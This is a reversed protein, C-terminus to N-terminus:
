AFHEAAHAAITRGIALSATAAPSPANLVHLMRWAPAFCFDDLLQGAANMAQARVGAGAPQLDEVEIEPLLRRLARWFAYKSYSRYYEGAGMRWYRRALTWFGRNTTIEWADGPAFSFKGYGERRLALVANPGAEVKGDVRRTFHVGLFPFNPDPVPYILNRVLGRRAEALEYYEGRFPMIRLQPDVGCLRAMRDSHLGACTVLNRAAVEEGAASVLVLAEPQRRCAALRFGKRVEVGGDALRREMAAAVQRYDVIGTEPVWLGAIGEVHPEYERLEGAALRRLHLGNALGREALADLRPLESRDLAVVLKGCTEYAIGERECFDLLLQRGQTCLTAKLSGPKYYLGSHIVGSNHGTQHAAVAAEAELVILSGAGAEQLALATALGVIGGGVVAIDYTTM